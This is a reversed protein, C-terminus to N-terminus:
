GSSSTAERMNRERRARVEDVFDDDAKAPSLAHLAEMSKRIEAQLATADRALPYEDLMRALHLIGKALVGSRYPEPM